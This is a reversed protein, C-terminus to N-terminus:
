KELLYLSHIIDRVKLNSFFFDESIRESFVQDVVHKLKFLVCKAIFFFTLTSTELVTLTSFM